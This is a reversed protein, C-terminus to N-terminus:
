NLIELKKKKIDLYYSYQQKIKIPLIRGFSYDRDLTKVYDTTTTEEGGQRPGNENKDRPTVCVCANISNAHM